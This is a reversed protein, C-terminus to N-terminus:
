FQMIRLNGFLYIFYFYYFKSRNQKVMARYEVKNLVSAKLHKVNM